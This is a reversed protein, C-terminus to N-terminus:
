AQHTGGGSAAPEMPNADALLMLGRTIATEASLDAGAAWVAAFAVDGLASRVL